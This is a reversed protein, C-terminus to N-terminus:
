TAHEGLITEKDQAPVNEWVVDRALELALGLESKTADLIHSYWKSYPWEEHGKSVFGGLSRDWYVGAAARYVFQYSSKEGGEICLLLEGSGLVEIKRITAVNSSMGGLAKFLPRGFPRDPSRLSRM